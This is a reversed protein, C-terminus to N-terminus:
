RRELVDIVRRLTTIDVSGDVRIRRGGLLEIEIMGGAHAVEAPGPSADKSPAPLAIPVFPPPATVKAFQRRWRFLLSPALGHKRAIASVSAAKDDLEAVIAEKEARSWRRRVDAVYTKTADPGSM